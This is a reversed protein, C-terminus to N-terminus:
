SGDFTSPLRDADARRRERTWGFEDHDQRGLAGAMPARARPPLHRDGRRAAHGGRRVWRAHPEQREQQVVERPAQEQRVHVLQAHRVVIAPGRVRVVHRERVRGGGLLERAERPAHRALHLHHPEGAVLPAARHLHVDGGPHRHMRLHSHRVDRHRARRARARHLAVRHERVLHREALYHERALEQRQREPAPEPAHGHRVRPHERLWADHVRGRPRRDRRHHLRIGGGVGGVGGGRAGGRAAGLRLLLLRPREAHPEGLLLQALDLQRRPERPQLLELLLIHMRVFSHRHRLRFRLGLRLVGRAARARARLRPAQALLLRRALRTPFFVRTPAPVLRVAVARIPSEFSVVFERHVGFGDFRETLRAPFAVSAPTPM